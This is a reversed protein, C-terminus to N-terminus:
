QRRSHWRGIVIEGRCGSLRPTPHPLFFPHRRRHQPNPISELLVQGSRDRRGHLALCQGSYFSVPVSPPCPLFSVHFWARPRESSLTATKSHRKPGANTWRVTCVTCIRCHRKDCPVQPFTIMIGRAKAVFSKPMTDPTGHLHMAVVLHLFFCTFSIPVYEQLGAISRDVWTHLLLSLSRPLTFRPTRCLLMIKAAEGRR